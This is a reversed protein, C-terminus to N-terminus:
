GDATIRRSWLYVWVGAANRHSRTYLHQEAPVSPHDDLASAYRDPLDLIQLHEPCDGVVPPVPRRAGDVPGGWYEATLDNRIM